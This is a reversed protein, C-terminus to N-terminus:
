LSAKMAPPQMTRSYTLAGIGFGEQDRSQVFERHSYHPSLERWLKPVGGAWARGRGSDEVIDHFLILGGERVFPSFCLFDQKVGEYRHDGDIFLVDIMRGNLFRAVKDVTRGSYSPMDIFLLKQMPPALLKLLEKNKVYLDICIMLEVTNLFKNFLLSTGGDYTGIECMIQPRAHSMLKIASEIEWPIQCSGVRMHRQTYEICDRVTACRKFERVLAERKKKNLKLSISPYADVLFKRMARVAILSRHFKLTTLLQKIENM